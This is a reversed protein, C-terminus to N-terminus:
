GHESEKLMKGERNMLSGTAMAAKRKWLTKVPNLPTVRRKAALLYAGTNLRSRRWSWSWLPLRHEATVEYGLLALWEVVKYMPLYNGQPIRRSLNHFSWPSFGYVLVEGDEALVRTVERLLQHPDATFELVHPLIVASLSETAIPLAEGEGEIVAWTHEEHADVDMVFPHHVETALKAFNEKSMGLQMLHMGYVQKLVESSWEREQQLLATGTATSFWRQLPQNSHMPRVSFNVAIYLVRVM